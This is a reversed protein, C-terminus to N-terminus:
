KPVQAPAAPAPPVQAAQHIATFKAWQEKTLLKRMDYLMLTRSKALDARKEELVNIQEMVAGDDGREILGEFKAEAEDLATKQVKLKPLAKQFVEEIRRTQEATLVLAKKYKESQWWKFVQGPAPKDQDPGVTFGRAPVTYMLVVAALATLAALSKISNM